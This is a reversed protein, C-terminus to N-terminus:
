DVQVTEPDLSGSVSACKGKGVVIDEGQETEEMPMSQTVVQLSEGAGSIHADRM